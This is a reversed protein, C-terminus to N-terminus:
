IDQTHLKNRHALYYRLAERIVESRYKRENIAILDIAQLLEPEIKISILILDSM